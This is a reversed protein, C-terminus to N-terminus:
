ELCIDDSDDVLDQNRGNGIGYQLVQDFNWIIRVIIVEFNDTSRQIYIYIYIFIYRDHIYVYVSFLFVVLSRFVIFFFVIFVNLIYFYENYIIITNSIYITNNTYVTYINLYQRIYNQAYLQRNINSSQTSIINDNNNRRVSTRENTLYSHM